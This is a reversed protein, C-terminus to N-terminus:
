KSVPDTVIPKVSYVRSGNGFQPPSRNHVYHSQVQVPWQFSWRASTAGRQGDVLPKGYRQNHHLLSMISSARARVALLIRKILNSIIKM